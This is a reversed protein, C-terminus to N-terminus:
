KEERGGKWEGNKEDEEVEMRVGEENEVVVVEEKGGGGGAEAWEGGRGEGEGM